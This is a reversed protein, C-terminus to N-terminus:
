GPGREKRAAAEDAKREVAQLEDHFARTAVERGAAHGAWFAISRAVSGPSRTARVVYSLIDGNDPWVETDAYRYYVALLRRERSSVSFRKIGPFVTTRQARFDPHPWEFREAGVLLVLSEGTSYVAIFVRRRWGLLGLDRWTGFGAVGRRAEMRDRLSGDILRSESVTGKEVDLCYRVAGTQYERVVVM